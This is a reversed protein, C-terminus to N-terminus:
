ELPFHVDITIVEGAAITFDTTFTYVGSTVTLTWTGAAFNTRKYFGGSFSSSLNNGGQKLVTTGNVPAGNVTVVGQVTTPTVYVGEMQINYIVEDDEEGVTVQGNFTTLDAHTATINHTGVSVPYISYYGIYNTIASIDNVTVTVGDVAKGNQDTVTGKVFRIITEELIVEVPTNRQVKSKDGIQGYISSGWSWINENQDITLNHVNAFGQSVTFINKLHTFPPDPNEGGQAGRLVQVPVNSQTQTGSAGRNNGLQGANNRGWTWVNGYRDQAMGADYGGSIAAIDKLHTFPPDPSEGGQEGRLVQIPVNSRTETGVAKNNGLEGNSNYGWAWVNGNKDLALNFADGASTTVIDKLHTYDPDPNAGGQAGRLVRVPWPAETQTPEERNNGLQGSTNRGWAWLQGDKELAISHHMGAGVGIFDFDTEHNLSFNRTNLGDNLTLSVSSYPTFGQAYVEIIKNAGAAVDNITYVGNGDTLTYKDDIKVTAGCLKIYGIDTNFRYTITGTVTAIGSPPPDAEEVVQVYYNAAPSGEIEQIFYKGSTNFTYSGYYYSYPTNPQQEATYGAIYGGLEGAETNFTNPGSYNIPFANQPPDNEKLFMVEHGLLDWNQFHLTDGEEIIIKEPVAVGNIIAIGLYVTQPEAIGGSPMFFGHKAQALTTEAAGDKEIAKFTAEHLGVPIGTM